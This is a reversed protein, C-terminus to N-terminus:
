AVEMAADARAIQRRLQALDSPSIGTLDPRPEDRPPAAEGDGERLIRRLAEGFGELLRRMTEERHLSESYVWEWRLVGRDVVADIEVAYPRVQAAAREMWGYRLLRGAFADGARPTPMRGLFNFCLEPPSRWPLPRATAGHGAYAIAGFGVGGSPITRLRHGLERASRALDDGAGDVAVPHLSTLFGVTRSLDVGPFLDFRGHGEVDVVTRSRGVWPALARGLAALLIEHVRAGLRGPLRLTLAETEASSLEARLTRTSAVTNDEPACAFDRPLRGELGELAGSWYERERAHDTSAARERLRESWERMSTTKAPLLPEIGRLCQAYATALDELVIGWSVADIVLHHAVLLLRDLGAGAARLLAARFVPGRELDLAAQVRREVDDLDGPLDGDGLPVCECGLRGPPPDFVQEWSDGRKEFRARLADHHRGVAELAGELARRDIREESELLCSQNWHHAHPLRQDFFWHQLPTLPVEGTVPERELAAAEAAHAVLALECLTQRELIDNVGIRLGGARARAVVRLALISDGGLDFFNDRRGIPEVELVEAWAAALIRETEGAPAEFAAKVASRDPAPPVLAKRDVKGNDTLPLAELAVFASPVLGPPVRDLLHRRLSDADIPAGDSPVVYAVLRAGSRGAVVQAVADRVGRHSRLAGEVEGLEVRQGRIKVQQDRRGLFQLGGTAPDWRAVDGTRYLRDCRGDRAFPDLGFASATQAPQNLYGRGVPLGGICLEGPVGAPALSGRADVVYVSANAIPRGISVAGGPASPLVLHTVDDSCETPGYANVLPVGPSWALWRRCLDAPLPEGTVLLWRLPWSPPAGAGELHDLLERLLTPVIELVTIRRDAVSAALAAPDRVTADDLVDVSGGSLLPALFQWICVDFSVNATQAVRDHPSLDLAELKAFLHNMMGARELLAGKPEGTSGSTYILYALGDEATAAARPGTARRRVAAPAELDVPVTRVGRLPPPPAGRATLAIRAGANELAFRLREPPWRPELLLFAAGAKCIAVLSVVTELSRETCVAVITEAGAGSERLRSALRDSLESLRGYTLSREGERAAIASPRAAALEDVRAGVRAGLADTREHGRGWELLRLEDQPPVLPVDWVPADPADILAALLHVYCGLWARVTSGDLVDGNYEADIRFCGDVTTVNVELDLRARSMPLDVLEATVGPLEPKWTSADVNFCISVLPLRGPERRPAVSRVIWTYPHAGHPLAAFIGDRVRRVLLRATDGDQVTSVFPLLNTTNAVLREGGELGRVASRIGVCIEGRESLRHLLLAFAAFLVSFPTAREAEAFGRLRDKVGPDIPLTEHGGSYSPQAPHPRDWPLELPDTHGRLLETWYRADERAQESALLSRTWEVYDSLQAAARALPRAVGETGAYDRWADELLVGVSLGDAVIDHVVVLLHHEEDGSRLHVIRLLPPRALDFPLDCESRVAAALLSAREKPSPATVDITRFDLAARPHVLQVGRERDISTRLAEHRDVVREFARALAAPDLPGVLRLLVAENYASPPVGSLGSLFLVQKQIETLDLVRPAAPAGDDPGAGQAAGPAPGSLVRARTLELATERVAAVVQELDAATHATSLFCTRQEWIYVGKHLLRFFFSDANQKCAFRFLSGFAHVELPSGARRLEDDLSEVLAATRENLDAQLRPGAETLHQLVSEAAAMSLPHKSYTSGIWTANERPRSDDGYSWRGGDVFDMLEHRGAIVGIPLGGAVVKGYTTVDATIGFWGQAGQPHVRFGTLIEDFVLAVDNEATWRRLRALFDRPQLWPRRSQVPEVLVGALEARHAELISFSDPDDFELVLVDALASAAIGPVAPVARGSRDQPAALTGDYIGHYAGAFLAIKSRGSRARVLRVAGMVAESGTAVFTAREAGTLACLLEAAPGANRSQPGIAMGRDLQARIAADIFPARHGFLLTGFGMTLDVYENGGLDWIRSGEARSVVVPHVLEKTSPRFGSSSRRDALVGRYRGVHEKSERMRAAHTRALEELYRLREAAPIAPSGADPADRAVVATRPVEGPGSASALSARAETPAARSVEAADGPALPGGEALVRLQGEITRAVLDLQRLLLAELTPDRAASASPGREATRAAPRVPLSTAEAANWAAPAAPPDDGAVVEGVREEDAVIEEGGDAAPGGRTSTAGRTRASVLEAIRAALKRPSDYDDFLESPTVKAGHEGEVRRLLEALMLSDSGIEIFAVDPDVGAADVGLIEGTARLVADLVGGEGDAGRRSV